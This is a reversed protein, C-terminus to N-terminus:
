RIAAGPEPARPSPAKPSPARPGRATGTGRGEKPNVREQVGFAGAPNARRGTLYALAPNAQLLAEKLNLWAQSQREEGKGKASPAEAFTSFPQPRGTAVLSGFQVPPGVFPQTWTRAIQGVAADLAETTVKGERYAQIAAAAGIARLGRAFPLFRLVDFYQTVAKGKENTDEGVKIAGFPTHKDGDVRGWKVYNIAAVAGVVQAIRLLIKGRMLVSAGISTAEVGPHLTLARVGMTTFTTGATVFPGLGTDRALAILRHQGQRNYQGFQNLFNTRNMVDPKAQRHEVLYDFVRAGTLRGVQGTYDILKGFYALPNARQWGALPPRPEKWAGTRALETQLRRIEPTNVIREGTTKLLTYLLRVTGVPMNFLASMQNGVHIAAELTSALATTNFLRNIRYLTRSFKPSDVQLAQRVEGAIEPHVYIDQYQPLITRKGEKDMVLTRLTVKMPVARKGDIIVTQGPRDYQALGEAVLTDYMSNRNAIETGRALTNAIMASARLEYQHGMGTARMAFPYRRILANMLNGPRSGAGFRRQLDHAFAEAQARPVLGLESRPFVKEAEAGTDPNRFHVRFGEGETGVIWGFNQRDAAKVVAGPGYGEQRPASPPREGERIAITNVITGMRPDPPPVDEDGALRQGQRYHEDMIPQFERKWRAVADALDRDTLVANEFEERSKWPSDKQNWVNHIREASETDGEALARQRIADHKLQVLLSGLKMDLEPDVVPRGHRDSVTGIIDEAIQPAAQKAYIRSSIFETAAQAAKRSRRMISPFLRGSFRRGGDVLHRVGDRIFAGTREIGEALNLSGVSHALAAVGPVDEAPVAGDERRVLNEALSPARPAEPIVSGSEQIIRNPHQAAQAEMKALAADAWPQGRYEELVARPVPKGIDVASKVERLHQRYLRAQEGSYFKEMGPVGTQAAKARSIAFDMKGMEWPEKGKAAPEQVTTVEAGGPQPPAETPPPGPARQAPPAQAKQQKKYEKLLAEWKPNDPLMDKPDLGRQALFERWTLPAAAPREPPTRPEQPLTPGRLPPQLPAQEAIGGRELMMGALEQGTRAQREEPSNRLEEEAQDRLALLQRAKWATMDRFGSQEMARRALEVRRAGLGRGIGFLAAMITGEVSPRVAGSVMEAYASVPDPSLLVRPPPLAMSAAAGGVLIPVQEGLAGRIAASLRGVAPASAFVAGQAARAAESGAQFVEQGLRVPLVNGKGLPVLWAALSGVHGGIRQAMGAEPLPNEGTTLQVAGSPLGALLTDLFSMAASVVGPVTGKQLENVTHKGWQAAIRESLYSSDRTIRAFRQAMDAFNIKGAADLFAARDGFTTVGVRQVSEGVGAKAEAQRWTQYANLAPMLNQILVNTGTPGPPEAASVNEFLNPNEGLARIVNPHEAEDATLLGGKKRQAENRIDQWTRGRGTLMLGAQAIPLPGYDADTYRYRPLVSQPEPAPRQAAEPVGAALAEHLADRETDTMSRAWMEAKTYPTPFPEATQPPGIGPLDRLGIKPLLKEALTMPSPETTNPQPLLKDALTTM